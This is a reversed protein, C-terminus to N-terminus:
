PKKAEPEPLRSFLLFEADLARPDAAGPHILIRYHLTLSEGSRLTIPADHLLAPNMYTFPGDKLPSLAVYWRSPHGPNTPHDFFTVGAPKGHITGSTDLWRARNRHTDM